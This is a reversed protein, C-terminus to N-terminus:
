DRSNRYKNLFSETITIHTIGGKAGNKEVDLLDEECIMGHNKMVSRAADSISLLCRYSVDIRTGANLYIPDIGRGVNIASAITDEYSM